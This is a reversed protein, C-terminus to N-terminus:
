RRKRRKHGKVMRSSARFEPPKKAVWKIFSQMEPAARIKEWTNYEDRLQNEDWTAHIKNHCVRHVPDAVKGGKLKPILHHENVSPGPIMPRRCLPCPPHDETM